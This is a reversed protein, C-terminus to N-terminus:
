CSTHCGQHTAPEHALDSGYVEGEGGSGDWSPQVVPLLWGPLGLVVSSTTGGSTLRPGASCVTCVLEAYLGPRPGAAALALHQVHGLAPAM